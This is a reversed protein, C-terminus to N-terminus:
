RFTEQQVASPEARDEQNQETIRVDTMNNAPLENWERQRAGKQLPTMAIM